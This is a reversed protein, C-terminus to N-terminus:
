HIWVIATGAILLALSYGWLGVRLAFRLCGCRIYDKLVSEVGLWGHLVFGWMALTSFVRWNFDQWLGQWAVFTLGDHIFFVVLLAVLWALILVASMRQWLWGKMGGIM